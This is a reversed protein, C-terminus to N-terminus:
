QYAGSNSEMKTEQGCAQGSRVSNRSNFYNIGSVNILIKTKKNTNKNGSSHHNGEFSDEFKQM